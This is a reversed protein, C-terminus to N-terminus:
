LEGKAGAGENFISCVNEYLVCKRTCPPLVEAEQTCTTCEEHGCQAGEWLNSLPFKSRLFIGNMEVVKVNFGLSPALTRVLEKLKTALEGGETNEVFLVSRFNM